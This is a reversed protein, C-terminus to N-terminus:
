KKVPIVQIIWWNWQIVIIKWSSVLREARSIIDLAGGQRLYEEFMRSGDIWGYISDIPLCNSELIMSSAQM